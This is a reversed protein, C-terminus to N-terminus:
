EPLILEKNFAIYYNESGGTSLKKRRIYQKKAGDVEDCKNMIFKIMDIPVQYIERRTRYQYEELLAKMCKEAKKMDHVSLTYLLDVSHAKGTQYSFLRKKLNSARGIKFLDNVEDSAKIVYIYGNATNLAPIDPRNPNLDKELRNIDIKLGEMLQNKYRLFQTEIDIFYTRVMEANKARSLMCLRKFCDPSVLIKKYNNSTKIGKSYNPNVAKITTYDIDKIYTRKLTSHLENKPSNLWKSIDDLSIIIDTQLSNEDYFKFLEDVFKEPVTTFRKVFKIVNENSM